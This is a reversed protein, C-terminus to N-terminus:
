GIPYLVLGLKDKVLEQQQERMDLDDVNHIGDDDYLLKYNNGEEDLSIVVAMDDPYENLLEKLEGITLYNGM